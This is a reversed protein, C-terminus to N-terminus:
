FDWKDGLILPRQPYKSADREPPFMEDYDPRFLMETRLRRLKASVIGRHFLRFAAGVRRLAKEIWPTGQRAFGNADHHLHLLTMRTEELGGACAGILRQLHALAYLFDLRVPAAACLRPM